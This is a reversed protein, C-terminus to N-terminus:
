LVSVTDLGFQRKIRYVTSIDYGESCPEEDSWTNVTSICESIILESLKDTYANLFDILGTGDVTNAHEKAIKALAAIQPTM